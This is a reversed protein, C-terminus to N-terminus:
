NYVLTFNAIGEYKGVVPAKGTISYHISKLTEQGLPVLLEIERDNGPGKDVEGSIVDFELKVSYTLGSAEPAILQVVKPYKITVIGSSGNAAQKYSTIGMIVEGKINLDQKMFAMYSIGTGKYSLTPELTPINATVPVISTAGVQSVASYSTAYLFITGILFVVYIKKFGRISELMRGKKM